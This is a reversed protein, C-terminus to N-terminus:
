IDDVNHVDHPNCTVTLPRFVERNIAENTRCALYELSEDLSASWDPSDSETYPGNGNLIFILELPKGALSNRMGGCAKPIM